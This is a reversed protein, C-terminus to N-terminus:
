HNKEMIAKELRSMEEADEESEHDYGLLHLIGHATIFELYQHFNKNETKVEDLIKNYSLIIDGINLVMENKNIDNIKIRKYRNESLQYLITNRTIDLFDIPIQELRNRHWDITQFSLVNTPINKDRFKKNIKQIENNDTLRVSILCTKGILIQRYSMIIQLTKVIAQIVIITQSSWLRTKSLDIIVKINQMIITM